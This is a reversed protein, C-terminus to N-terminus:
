EGIAFKLYKTKRILVVLLISLASTAFFALLVNSIGLLKIVEQHVAYIGLTMQGLYVLPSKFEGFAKFVYFCFMIGTYAALMALAFRLVGDRQSLQIVIFTVIFLILFVVGAFKASKIREGYEKILAGVVYFQYMWCMSKINCVNSPLLKALGLLFIAILFLAEFAKRKDDCSALVANVMLSIFFLDWLFWLYSDPDTILTIPSSKHIFLLAGGMFFYPILLRVFRKKTAILFNVGLKYGFYGSIAMFLPMHFAYIFNFLIENSGGSGQLCHGMVVLLIAFGKLNDLYLIREKM